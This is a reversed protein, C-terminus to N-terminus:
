WRAIPGGERDRDDVHVFGEDPYKAVGGVSPNTLYYDLLEDLSVDDIYGDAAMAEEHKSHGPPAVHERAVEPSGYKAVAANWIETQHETSRFGSTVHYRKGGFHARAPELVNNALKHLRVRQDPTALNLPDLERWTFNPSANTKTDYSM